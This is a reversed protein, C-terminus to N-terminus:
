SQLYFPSHPSLDFTLPSLDFTLPLPDFTFVGLNHKQAGSIMRRFCLVNFKSRQFRFGESGRAMLGKWGKRNGAGPKWGVGYGTDCIM